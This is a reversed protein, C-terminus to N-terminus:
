MSLLSSRSKAMTSPSWLRPMATISSPAASPTPRGTRGAEAAEDFAPDADEAGIGPVGGDGLAVQAAEAGLALRDHHVLPGADVAEDAVDDLAADGLAVEVGPSSGPTM